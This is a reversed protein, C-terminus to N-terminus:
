CKQKQLIARMQGCAMEEKCGIPDFCIIALDDYILLSRLENVFSELSQTESIKTTQVSNLPSIRIADIWQKNFDVLKALKEAHLSSTNNKHVVYNLIVRCGAEKLLKWWNFALIPDEAQPIIQRRTIVDAGHLSIVIKEPSVLGSRIESNLIECWSRPAISTFTYRKILRDNNLKVCADRVAIWNASCDGIGSFDLVDIPNGQNADDIVIRTIEYIERSSLNRIFPIPAYTTACHFCGKACGVQASACIVKDIIFDLYGVEVCVHDDDSEILYKKSNVSHEISTTKIIKM